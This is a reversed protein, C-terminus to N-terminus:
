TEGDTGRGLRHFDFFVDVMVNRRESITELLTKKECVRILVNAINWNLNNEVTDVKVM